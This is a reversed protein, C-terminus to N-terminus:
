FTILLFGEIDVYFQRLFEAVKPIPIWFTELEQYEAIYPKCLKTLIPAKM